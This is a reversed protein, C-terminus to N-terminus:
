RTLYSRIEDNCVPRAVCCNWPPSCRKYPQPLPLLHDVITDEFMPMPPVVLDDLKCMEQLYPKWADFEFAAAAISRSGPIHDWAKRRRLIKRKRARSDVDKRRIKEQGWTGKALEQRADGVGKWLEPWLEPPQATTKTHRVFRGRAWNDKPKWLLPDYYHVVRLRMDKGLPIPTYPKGKAEQTANWDYQIRYQEVGNLTLIERTNIDIFSKTVVYGLPPGKDIRGQLLEKTWTTYLNSYADFTEWDAESTLSDLDSADDAPCDTQCKESLQSSDLVKQFLNLRNPFMIGPQARLCRQTVTLEPKPPTITKESAVANTSFLRALDEGPTTEIDEEKEEAALTCHPIRNGGLALGDQLLTSPRTMNQELLSDFM